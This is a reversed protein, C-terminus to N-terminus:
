ATLENVLNVGDAGMWKDLLAKNGKLAAQFEPSKEKLVDLANLVNAMTSERRAKEAEVNAAKRRQAAGFLLGGVGGTGLLGVLAAGVPGGFTSAAGEALKLGGMIRAQKAEIRALAEETQESAEAITAANNQIRDATARDIEAARANLAAITSALRAASEAEGQDYVSALEAVEIGASAQVKAVAADFRRRRLAAEAKAGEEAAKAEALVRAVEADKARLAKENDAEAQRKVREERLEWEQATLPKGTPDKETFDCGSLGLVSMALGAVIVVKMTTKM